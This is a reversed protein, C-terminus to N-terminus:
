NVRNIPKHAEEILVDKAQKEAFLKGIAYIACTFRHLIEDTAEGKRALFTPSQFLLPPSICSMPVCNEETWQWEEELSRFKTTDLRPTVDQHCPFRSLFLQIQVRQAPQFSSLTPKAVFQSSIFTPFKRLYNDLLCRRAYFECNHEGYGLTIGLLVPERFFSMFIDKSPNELDRFFSEKDGFKKKVFASLLPEKSILQTMAEKHILVINHYGNQREYIKLIFRPSDKFTTKLFEFLAEKTRPYFKLRYSTTFSIPKKGLLTCGLDQSFIDRLHPEIECNLKPEATYVSQVACARDFTSFQLLWCSIVLLLFNKM